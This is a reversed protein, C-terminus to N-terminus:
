LQRSALLFSSFSDSSSGHTRIKSALVPSGRVKETMPKNSIERDQQLDVGCFELTREYQPKM